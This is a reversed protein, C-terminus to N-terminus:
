RYKKKKRTWLSWAKKYIQAIKLSGADAFAEQLNRLARYKAAIVFEGVNRHGCSSEGVICGVCFGLSFKNRAWVRQSLPRFVQSVANVMIIMHARQNITRTGSSFFDLLFLLFGRIINGWRCKKNVETKQITKEGKQNRQNRLTSMWKSQARTSAMALTSRYTDEFTHM